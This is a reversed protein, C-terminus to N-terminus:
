QFYKILKERDGKIYTVCERLDEPLYNWLNQMENTASNKDYNTGNEHQIQHSYDRIVPRGMIFSIGNMVLDWGWGMKMNEHTMIQSLGRLYYDDIVDRHIFWVTEDTCAVMKINEDECGIGNIDTNESSYWINTIDPAYVGWEYSSYYKRADNVLNQYNDYVTDGQVHMLVKKDDGFLELAKRFQSTFYSEEGIDIWGPRTNNEDSNIVIVDSFIKKLSDEIICTKEFKNKWNFIFPQIDSIRIQSFKNNMYGNQSKSDLDQYLIELNPNLIRAYNVINSTKGIITKCKSLSTSDILVQDGLTIKDESSYDSFHLAIDGTTRIHDHSFVNSFNFNDLFYKKIQEVPENEDSTIFVSNYYNKQFEKGASDLVKELTVFDTHGNNRNDTGRYHIGLCNSYDASDEKLFNKVRSNLPIYDIYDSFNLEQNTPWISLDFNFKSDHIIFESTIESDEVIKKADFWEKPNGYLSFMSSSIFINEPDINERGILYRLSTLITTYNSLFGRPGNEVLLIKKM